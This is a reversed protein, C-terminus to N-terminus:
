SKKNDGQNREKLINKNIIKAYIVDQSCNKNVGSKRTGVEL